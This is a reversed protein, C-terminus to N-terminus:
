NEEPKPWILQRFQDPNPDIQITPPHDTEPNTGFDLDLKNRFQRITSRFLDINVRLGLRLFVNRLPQERRM